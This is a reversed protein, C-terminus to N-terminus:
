PNSKEFEIQQYKKRTYKRWMYLIQGILQAFKAIYNFLAYLAAQYWQPRQRHTRVTVKILQMPILLLVFLFLKHILTASLLVGIPLLFAWVWIRLSNRLCYREEEGGHMAFGQAFAYGSRMARKWWQSFKTMGADHIAMPIDIRFIDWGAHRLRYCLEPEEGAVVEPNFGEVQDFASCRIMFIGGCGKAKGSIVNWEINCLTNYVSKEPYRERVTGAIIAWSPNQFLYLLGRNLWDGLLECDGDVFQIYVIDPYKALLRYYGENRARGANFPLQMDLIIVDVGVSSAFAVSDDTSGSDVYVVKVSQKLTSKLCLKLREGENRGIVVVGVNLHTDM